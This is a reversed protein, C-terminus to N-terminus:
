VKANAYRQSHYEHYFALMEGLSEKMSCVFTKGPMHMKPCSGLCVPLLRCGQCASSVFPDFQGFPGESGTEVLTREIDDPYIQSFTTEQTGISPVCKGIRGDSGVTWSNWVAAACPYNRPIPRGFVRYGEEALFYRFSLEQDAFESYSFCDHPICDLVGRSTNLYGLRFDIRPDLVDHDKFWQVVYEAEDHNDRDVNIRVTVSGTADVLSQMNAALFGYYAEAKHLPIQKRRAYTEPRGDLTIQIAKISISALSSITKKTLMLGNTLMEAHYSIGYQECIGLFANSLDLILDYRLLPEGGFWQVVLQKCDVSKLRVFEILGRQIDPKMASGRNINQQFCYTCRLNCAMTPVITLLLRDRSKRNNLFKMHERAYEDEGEPVVFGLMALGRLLDENACGGTKEVESLCNELVPLQRSDLALSASTVSNFLLHKCNTSATVNFVSPKWRKDDSMANKGEASDYDPVFTIQASLRRSM